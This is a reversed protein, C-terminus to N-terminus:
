RSRAQPVGFLRRRVLGGRLREVDLAVLALHCVAVVVTGAAIRLQGQLRRALEARLADATDAARLLAQEHRQMTCLVAALNFRTPADARPRLVQWHASWAARPSSRGALAPALPALASGALAAARQAPTGPALAGYVPDALMWAPAIDPRALRAMLSLSPLWALWALWAQWALPHWSAVAEVHHRWHTRLAREIAHCDHTADFASVWEALASARVAAVYPALERNMDLRRWDAEDLRRGHRAHVRALAYDLNGDIPM